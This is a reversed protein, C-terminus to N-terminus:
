SWYAVFWNKNQGDPWVFISSIRDIMDINESSCFLSTMSERFCVLFMTMLLYIAPPTPYFQGWSFFPSSLFTVTNKDM